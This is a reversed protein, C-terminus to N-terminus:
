KGKFFRSNVGPRPATKCHLRLSAVRCAFQAGGLTTTWWPLLLNVVGRKSMSRNAQRKTERLAVRACSVFGISVGQWAQQAGPPSQEFAYLPVAPFHQPM